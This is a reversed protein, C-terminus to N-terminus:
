GGKIEFGVVLNSSTVGNKGLVPYRKLPKPVGMNYGKVALKEVGNKKCRYDWSVMKKLRV